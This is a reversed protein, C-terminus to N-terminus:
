DPQLRKANSWGNLHTIARAGNYSIVGLGEALNRWTRRNFVTLRSKCAPANRSPGGILASGFAGALIDRRRVGPAVAGVKARPGRRHPANDM